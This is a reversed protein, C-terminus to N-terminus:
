PSNRMIRKESGLQDELSAAGQPFQVKRIRPKRVVEVKCGTVLNCCLSEAVTQGVELSLMVSVAPM